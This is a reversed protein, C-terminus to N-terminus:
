RAFERDLSNTNETLSEILRARKTVLDVMARDTDELERLMVKRAEWHERAVARDHCAICEWSKEELQLAAVRYPSESRKYRRERQKADVDNHARKLDEFLKKSNLLAMVKVWGFRVEV